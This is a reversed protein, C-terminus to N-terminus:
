GEGTRRPSAASTACHYPCRNKSEGMKRATAYQTRQRSSGLRLYSSDIALKFTALDRIREHLQLRIGIAWIGKLKSPSKQGRLSIAVSRAAGREPDGRMSQESTSAEMHLERALGQSSSTDLAPM